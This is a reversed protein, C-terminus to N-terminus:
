PSVSLIQQVHVDNKALGILESDVYLNENSDTESVNETVRM